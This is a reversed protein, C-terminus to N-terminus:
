GSVAKTVITRLVGGKGFLPAILSVTGSVAGLPLALLFSLLTDRLDRGMPKGILIQFLHNQQRCALNLITQMFAFTDYELSFTKVRGTSFGAAKLLSTLAQEDFHLLHRPVDLHFWASGGVRAQWSGFNPVEVLLRGGPRLLRYAERITDRPEPLHELVHWLTVVDFSADELTSIREPTVVEIGLSQRLEMVPSQSQEIGAVDWGRRRCALIFDGRGCGIDLLRGKQRGRGLKDARWGMAQDKFLPHRAGYYGDPYYSALKDGDVVPDVYALSCDHCRVVDFRDGSLPDVGTLAYGAQSLGCGPCTV